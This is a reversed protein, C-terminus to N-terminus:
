LGVGLGCKEVEVHRSVGRCRLARKAACGPAVRLWGRM